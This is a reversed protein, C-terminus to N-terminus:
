RKEAALLLRGEEAAALRSTYDRYVKDLRLGACELAARLQALSFARQCHLEMSRRYGDGDKEFLDVQHVALGRRPVGYQWVSFLGDDEYTSVTGGERAFLQPSKVDFLFRGGPELFLSVRRLAAELGGPETLYNISDLCCVAARITGYLDLQTMDQCILVPPVALDACRRRARELMEPSRDCGIMEYGCLALERTVAGTGCALDLVLGDCIGARRLLTRLRAAYKQPIEPGILRDYAGALGTYQTM